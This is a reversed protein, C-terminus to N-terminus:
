NNTHTITELEQLCRATIPGTMMSGIIFNHGEVYDGEARDPLRWSFESEFRSGALIMRLDWRAWERREGPDKIIRPQQEQFYALSFEPNYEISAAEAQEDSMLVVEGVIACALNQVDAPLALRWETLYANAHRAVWAQILDRNTSQQEPSTM